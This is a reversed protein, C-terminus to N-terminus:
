RFAHPLFLKQSKEILLINTGDSFGEVNRLSMSPRLDLIRLLLTADFVRFNM